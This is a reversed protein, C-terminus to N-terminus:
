CILTSHGLFLKSLQKVRSSDQIFKRFLRMRKLKQTRKTLANLHILDNLLDKIFAILLVFAGVLFVMFPLASTFITPPIATFFAFAIPYTYPTSWDFPLKHFADRFLLYMWKISENTFIHLKQKEEYM